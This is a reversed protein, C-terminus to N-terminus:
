KGGIRHVTRRLCVATAAATAVLGGLLLVWTELPGADYGPLALVPWAPPLPLLLLNWPSPLLWAAVPSLAMLAGIGKVVVMAEVKNAALATMGTLLMPAQLAAVLVAAFPAASWGGAMLGSLPLAVVLGLFSLVAVLVMRYLLYAPLSLPSVRLVLLVNDDVDEIARLGGATGFMMPVHLLVLTALVVPIHPELLFGYSSLLLDSALPRLFRIVLALLVPACLLLLLLPDRGAGFLDVRAFTVVVPLRGRGTGRGGAPAARRGTNRYPPPAPVPGRELARHAMVVVAVAWALAYVTGLGLTLAGSDVSAPDAGSRILDAGVTSPVLYLLPHELIGSMHVLPVIILPAAILPALLLVGSFDRARAGAALCLALLLLSTLAVGALVPPLTHPLDGIRDRTAAAVMPVAMLLALATLVTLRAFVAELSRMPSVALAQRTGESREFLLLAAAFLAGFVATDLFLLHVAVTGASEVPAALLLVTWLLGLAVTVAVIGYRLVLRSELAMAAFLRSM